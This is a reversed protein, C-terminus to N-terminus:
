LTELRLLRMRMVNGLNIAPEDPHTGSRDFQYNGNIFFKIRQDFLPGSLSLNTEDYGWWYTGLRKEGNFADKASQFGVNDTIYELSAKFQPGGSKFTSRIIGSNAGGFEATYGGAQVQIEELADRSIDIGRDGNLPNKISVGELYYGVEDSRGGRIYIKDNSM